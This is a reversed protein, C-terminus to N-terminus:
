VMNTVPAVQPKLGTDDGPKKRVIEWYVIRRPWLIPQAYKQWIMCYRPFWFCVISAFPDNIHYACQTTVIKTSLRSFPFDMLATAATVSRGSPRCIINNRGDQGRKPVSCKWLKTIVYFQSFHGIEIQILIVNFYYYYYYHYYHFLSSFLHGWLIISLCNMICWEIGM